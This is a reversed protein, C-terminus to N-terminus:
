IKAGVNKMINKSQKNVTGRLQKDPHKEQIAKLLQSAYGKKQYKEPTKIWEINLLGEEPFDISYWAQSLSQEFNDSDIDILEATKFGNKLDEGFRIKYTPEEEPEFMSEVVSKRLDRKELIKIQSPDYAVIERIHGSGTSDKIIVGDYGMSKIKETALKMPEASSNPYDKLDIDLKSLFDSAGAAITIYPNNFHL